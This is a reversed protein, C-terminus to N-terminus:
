CFTRIRVCNQGFESRFLEFPETGRRDFRAVVQLPFVAGGLVTHCLVVSLVTTVLLQDQLSQSSLDEPVAQLVLAYAVVGRLAGGLGVVEKTKRDKCIKGPENEATDFRFTALFYANSLM